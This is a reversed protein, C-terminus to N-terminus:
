FASLGSAEMLRYLWYDSQAPDAFVAFDATYEIGPAARNVWLTDFYQLAQQALPANRGLEIAADAELDYDELDRRTLQASGAALWLSQRGDILLLATHFREGHTRYWRVRISGGSRSVLESAVPQNPVGAAGGRTAGENPDLILRVSVGRRAAALLSEIIGRDALYELAADVSDAASTADLRALLVRRIAGETLLQVRASGEPAGPSAADAATCEPPAPQASGAYGEARGRWGSFRAIQLESELLAELPAGTVRVAVNSWGRESDSPNASGVIAALGGHPDDAIILKRDSTKFNLRRTEIGLPGSPGDWWRLALRWLSSWAVNSDRLRNLDTTVVEVGAARLLQLDESPAAGYGENAPDTIFLIPLSPQERRRALLADTLAAAVRRQPAAEGAAGGFAAYDLVIFRRAGDILGLVADFIGQSVVPRGFADATTTDAIFALGAAPVACLPSALHTGPPLPKHTHWWAIALWAALLGCALLRRPARM